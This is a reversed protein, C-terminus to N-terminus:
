EYYVIVEFTYDSSGGAAGSLVARLKFGSFLPAKENTACIKVSDTKEAIATGTLLTRGGPSIVSLTTTISDNSYDPTTFEWGHLSYGQEMPIALSNFTTGTPNITIYVKKIFM